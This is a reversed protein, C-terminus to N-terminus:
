VRFGLGQTIQSDSPTGPELQQVVCMHICLRQWSEACYDALLTHSHTYAALLVLSVAPSPVVVAVMKLAAMMASPIFITAAPVLGTCSHRPISVVTAARTFSRCCMLVSTVSASRALTAVTEAPPLSTTRPEILWDLLQM